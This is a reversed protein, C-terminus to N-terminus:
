GGGGGMMWVMGLAQQGFGLLGRSRKGVCDDSIGTYLNHWAYVDEVLEEAIIVCSVLYVRNVNNWPSEVVSDPM